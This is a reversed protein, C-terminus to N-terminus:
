PAKQSPQQWWVVWYLPNYICFGSCGASIFEGYKATLETTMPMGVIVHVLRVGSRPEGMLMGVGPMGIDIPSALAVLMCVTVVIFSRRSRRPSNFVWLLMFPIALLRFSIILLVLAAVFFRGIYYWIMVSRSTTGPAM